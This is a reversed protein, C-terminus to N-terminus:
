KDLKKKKIYNSKKENLINGFVKLGINVLGKGIKAIANSADDIVELSEKKIDEDTYKM